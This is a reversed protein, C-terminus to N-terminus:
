PSVTPRKPGSGREDVRGCWPQPIPCTDNHPHEQPLPNACPRKKGRHRGREGFLWNPSHTALAWGGRFSKWPMQLCALGSLQRLPGASSALPTHRPPPPSAAAGTGPCFVQDASAVPGTVDRDGGTGQVPPFASGWPPPSPTLDRLWPHGRKRPQPPPAREAAAESFPMKLTLLRTDRGQGAAQCGPVM